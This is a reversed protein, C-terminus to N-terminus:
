RYEKKLFFVICPPQPERFCCSAGLILFHWHFNLSKDNGFDILAAHFAPVFNLIFNNSSIIVTTPARPPISEGREKTDLTLHWLTTLLLHSGPLSIISDSQRQRGTERSPTKKKKLFCITVGSLLIGTRSASNQSLLLISCRKWPRRGQKSKIGVWLRSKTADSLCLSKRQACPVQPYVCEAKTQTRLFGAARPSWYVLTM